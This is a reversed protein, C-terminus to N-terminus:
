QMEQNDPADHRAWILVDTWRLRLPGDASTIAKWLQSHQPVLGKRIGGLPVDLAVRVLADYLATPGGGRYGWSFGDFYRPGPPAPLPDVQWGDGTPTLALVPGYERPSTLRDAAIVTEENWAPPLGRPWEAQYDVGDGGAAPVLAILRDHRDILLERVDDATHSGLLRRGRRSTWVRPPDPHPHLTQRWQDAVTGDMRGAVVTITDVALHADVSEAALYLLTLAHEIADGEGADIPLDAEARRLATLDALLRDPSISPLPPLGALAVELELPLTPAAPRAALYWGEGTQPMRIQAQRVEALTETTDAALLAWAAPHSTPLGFDHAAVLRALAAPWPSATDPVTFTSTYARARGIAGPLRTGRIWTPVPRGTVRGLEHADISGHYESTPPPVVDEEATAAGTAPAQGLLRTIRERLTETRPTPGAPAGDDEAPPEPLLRYLELVPHPMRDGYKIGLDVVVLADAWFRPAILEAALVAERDASMGGYEPPMDDLQTIYVVHGHETGWCIAHVRYPQDRWLPTDTVIGHFLVEAPTAADPVKYLWAAEDAVARDTNRCWADITAANWLPKGDADSDDPSPLRGETYLARARSAAIGARRGLQALTHPEVLSRVPTM